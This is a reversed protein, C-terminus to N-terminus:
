LTFEKTQGHRVEHIDNKFGIKIAEPTVGAVQVTLLGGSIKIAAVQQSLTAFYGNGLTCLAERRKEQAPDFYDCILSWQSM